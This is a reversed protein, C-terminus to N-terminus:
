LSQDLKLIVEIRRNAAAYPEEPVLLDVAARGVIEEIRAEDLGGRVLMYHAMHARATSLRWNDYDGSQYKRADTHGIVEIPGNRKGIVLGVKEMARVLEPSPRASGISFMGSKSKDSIIITAGDEDYLVNLDLLKLDRKAVLEALESKLENALNRAKKKKEEKLKDLKSKSQEDSVTEEGNGSKSTIELNKVLNNKSVEEDEQTETKPKEKQLEDRFVDKDIAEAFQSFSDKPLGPSMSWSSPDFPDQFSAGDSIGLQSTDQSVEGLTQNSDGDSESLAGAIESLVAYPDVFLAQENFKKQLEESTITAKESSNVTTSEEEEAEEQTIGYKPNKVGKPNSTTDMLKIPNFYSAVAKKTQENSANILWMVLFFAMLATMFDAFAIKWVGGHHEDEHAGSRRVIIIENKLNSDDNIM